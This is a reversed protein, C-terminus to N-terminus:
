SSRFVCVALALQRDLDPLVSTRYGDELVGDTPIAQFLVGALVHSEEALGIPAGRAADDM